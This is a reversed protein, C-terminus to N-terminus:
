VLSSGLDEFDRDIKKVEGCERDKRRALCRRASGSWRVQAGFVQQLEALTMMDPCAHHRQASEVNVARMRMIPVAM